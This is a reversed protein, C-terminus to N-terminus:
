NDKIEHKPPLVFMFNQPQQQVETKEKKVIGGRDLLDQIAQLKIKAGPETPDRMISVLGMIAEPVYMALAQDFSDLMTQHINKIIKNLPYTKDYGAMIKAEEPHRIDQGDFLYDLFLQEQRTLEKKDTM